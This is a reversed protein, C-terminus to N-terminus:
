AAAPSMDLGLALVMALLAVLETLEILAGIGDGTHGGLRQLLSARWVRFTLLAAAAAAVAAPV